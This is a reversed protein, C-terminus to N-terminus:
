NACAAAGAGEDAAPEPTGAIRAVIAAVEMREFAGFEIARDLRRLWANPFTKVNCAEGPAGDAGPPGVHDCQDWAGLESAEKCLLFIADAVQDGLWGGGGLAELTLCTM